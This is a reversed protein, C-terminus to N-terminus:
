AGLHIVKRAALPDSVSRRAWAFEDPASVGRYLRDAWVSESWFRSFEEPGVRGESLAHVSEVGGFDILVGGLDFVLARIAVPQDYVGSQGM